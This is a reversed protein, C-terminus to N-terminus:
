TISEILSKLLPDNCCNALEERLHRRYEAGDIGLPKQWQEFLQQLRRAHEEVWEQKDQERNVALVEVSKVEYDNM